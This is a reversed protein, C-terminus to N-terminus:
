KLAAQLSKAKELHAQLTPLTKTAFAQVEPDDSKKSAKTFLEVAGVHDKVMTNIYDADYHKSDSKNWKDVDPQKAPLTISKQNALTALALNAATHDSVMMSAFMRTDASTLHALAAQSIAVEEAGGKAAKEVFTKDGHSVSKATDAAVLALSASVFALVGITLHTLTKMHRIVSAPITGLNGGPRRIAM